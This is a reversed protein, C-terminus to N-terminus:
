KTQFKQELWDIPSFFLCALHTPKRFWVNPIAMVECGLDGRLGALLLSLGLFLATGLQGRGHGFIPANGSGLIYILILPAIALIAGLWPSVHTMYNVLVFHVLGYFLTLMVAIGVSILTLQWDGRLYVLAVSAVLFIGIVIRLTRGIWGTTIM